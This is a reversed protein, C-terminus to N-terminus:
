VGLLEVSAGQSRANRSTGCPGVTGLPQQSSPHQGDGAGVVTPAPRSSTENKKEEVVLVGSRERFPGGRGKVCGVDDGVGPVGTKLTVAALVRESTRGRLISAALACGYTPRNAVKRKWGGHRGIRTTSAMERLRYRAPEPGRCVNAGQFRGHRRSCARARLSDRGVRNTSPRIPQV